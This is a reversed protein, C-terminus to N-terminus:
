NLRSKLWHQQLSLVLGHVCAAQRHGIEDSRNDFLLGCRGAHIRRIEAARQIVEGRFGLEVVVPAGIVLGSTDGGAFEVELGAEAIDLANVIFTRDDETRIITELGATRIVPVRFSQRLNTITLEKPVTAIM